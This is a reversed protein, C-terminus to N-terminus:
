GNGKERKKLPITVTVTTGNGSAGIIKVEGGWSYVRERMGIFGFSQPSSIQKETIGKGNDEVKLEIKTAKQRLSVKVRTAHSHRAVNTLTEQFIRFLATSLKEDLIIEEPTATLKCKIGTRDQFEETVGSSIM